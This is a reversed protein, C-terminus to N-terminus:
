PTKESKCREPVCYAPLGSRKDAYFLSIRHGVGQDFSSSRFQGASTRGPFDRIELRDGRAEGAVGDDLGGELDAAAEAARHTDIAPLEIGSRHNVRVGAFPM